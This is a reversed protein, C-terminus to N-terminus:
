GIIMEWLGNEKDFNECATNLYSRINELRMRYNNRIHDSQTKDNMGDIILKLQFPLDFENEKM